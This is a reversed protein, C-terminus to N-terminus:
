FIQQNERNLYLKTKSNLKKIKKLDTIINLLEKDNSFYNRKIELNKIPDINFQSNNYYIPFLGEDLADFCISSGKYILINCRRLDQKLTKQSFIVKGHCKDRIKKIEYKNLNPHLRLYFNISAKQKILENILDILSLIEPMSKDPTVLCSIKNFKKKIIIKKKDDLKM